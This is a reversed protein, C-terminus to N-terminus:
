LYLGGGISNKVGNWEGRVWFWGAETESCPSCRMALIAGSCAAEPSSPRRRNRGDWSFSGTGPPEGDGVEDNARMASGRRLGPSGGMVGVQRTLTRDRRRQGVHVIFWLRQILVLDLAGRQGTGSRVGRIVSAHPCCSLWGAYASHTAPRGMKEERM